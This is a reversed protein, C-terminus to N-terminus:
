SEQMGEISEWGYRRCKQSDGWAANGDMDESYGGV